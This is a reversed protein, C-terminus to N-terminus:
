MTEYEFPISSMAGPKQVAMAAAANAKSVAAEIEADFDKLPKGGAVFKAFTTAFYGVFTDGAATTDVVKKVQVGAVLGSAGSTTSYYVGKSGLTILMINVKANGHFHAALEKLPLDDESINSVDFGPISAALQLAETENVIITSMNELAKLPIGEPFVPAPNFVVHTKSTSANLHELLSLTTDRPIEGQMVVVTPPTSSSKLTELVKNVDNMGAHNAGPVVLIRNEGNADEDIIITASGTSVGELEQIKETNVGSNELTPKLLGSWQPDNAGVAGIMSVTVDQRSEAAFSARGCAVAQNAGKGGGHVSFSTATLTEGPGPHRPTVTVYDVNLSGVICVHPQTAMNNTSPSIHSPVPESHSLNIPNFNIHKRTPCYIERLTEYPTKFYISNM